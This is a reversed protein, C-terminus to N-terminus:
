THVTGNHQQLLNHIRRFILNVQRNRSRGTWWGEVVGINDGYVKIHARASTTQMIHKVLFEFGIAEAWGIDRGESTWGPVLRWARWHEGVTIAIGFSSSADSYARLDILPTPQPISRSIIPQRLLLKWWKLDDATHQPPTRPVFPRDHFIGLMAELSTLYAHGAPVVLSVHLLKRHLQQVEVLAHTPKREWTEIAAMYKHKKRDPVTVTCHSLDWTFGLYPISFGFPITKAPEWKIGLLDSISDIDDDCYSYEHGMSAYETAKPLNRLFASCDEDFEEHKGNPMVKGRFWIRSGVHVRRGQDKIEQKWRARDANYPDLAACRVRFFIHDDVWKSLPGIGNARFIDAGADALHGYVGGASTLGFNNHTNIAYSDEGKLRVVLGPWQTQHAPITRYAAAVDRVSAQSGPPLRSIVLSIAEFTGWTCPYDDANINSNISPPKTPNHPFSFDHVARFKSPKDPKPCLSLPSSQFPGIFGEVENRSYPGLYRGAQFEKDVNEVYANHYLNISMNNRPTYTQSITPIGLHFGHIIEEVLSPYRGELGHKALEKHWAEAKYSTIAKIKRDALAVNPVTIQKAVAPADTITPTPPQSVDGLSSGTSVSPLARAASWVGKNTEARNARRVTGYSQPRASASTTNTAVLAYPASGLAVHPQATAFFRNTM